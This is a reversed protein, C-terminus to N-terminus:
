TRRSKERSALLHDYFLYQQAWGAKQAAKFTDFIDM